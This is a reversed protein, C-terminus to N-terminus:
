LIAHFSHRSYPPTSHYYPFQFYAVQYSQARFSAFYRNQSRYSDHILISPAWNFTYYSRFIDITTIHILIYKPEVTKINFLVLVEYVKLMLFIIHLVDMTISLLIKYIVAHQNFILILLM